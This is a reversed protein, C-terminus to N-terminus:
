SEPCAHGPKNADCLKTQALLTTWTALKEESVPNKWLKRLHYLKEEGAIIMQVSTMVKGEHECRTLWSLSDYGNVPESSLSESSFTTCNKEAPKDQNQKFQKLDRSELKSINVAYQDSFGHDHSKWLTMESGHEHFSYPRYNQYDEFSEDFHTILNEGHQLDDAFAFAPFLLFLAYKLKM